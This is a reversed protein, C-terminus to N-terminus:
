ASSAMMTVATSRLTTRTAPMSATRRWQGPVSSPNVATVRSVPRSRRVRHGLEHEGHKRRRNGREAERQERTWAQSRGNSLRRGPTGAIAAFLAFMDLVVFTLAYIQLSWALRCSFANAGLAFERHHAPDTPPHVAFLVAPVDIRTPRLRACGGPTTSGGQRPGVSTLDDQYTPVQDHASPTIRSPPIARTTTPTCRGCARCVPV